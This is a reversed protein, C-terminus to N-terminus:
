SVRQSTYNGGSQRRKAGWFLRDRRDMFRRRTLPVLFVCLYYFLICCIIFDCYYLVRNRGSIHDHLRTSAPVGIAYQESKRHDVRNRLAQQQAAKINKNHSGSYDSGRSDVQVAMSGADSPASPAAGLTEGDARPASSRLM